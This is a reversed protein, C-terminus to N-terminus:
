FLRRDKSVKNLMKKFIRLMSMSSKIKKKMRGMNLEKNIKTKFSMATKKTIKSILVMMKFNHVVKKSAKDKLM